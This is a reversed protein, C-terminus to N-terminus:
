RDDEDSDLLQEILSRAGRWVLYALLLTMLVAAASYEPRAGSVAGRAPGAVRGRIGPDNVRELIQDLLEPPADEDDATASARQLEDRLSRERELEGACTDCRAVHRLVLRRRWPSLTEAVLGPLQAQVRECTRKM